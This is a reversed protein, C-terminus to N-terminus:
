LGLPGKLVIDPNLTKSAALEEITADHNYHFWSLVDSISGKGDHSLRYTVQTLVRFAYDQLHRICPVVHRHTEGAHVISNRLRFMRQLHWSTHTHHTALLQAAAPGDKLSKALQQARLGLLDTTACFDILNKAGAPDNFVTLLVRVSEARQSADVGLVQGIDVECRECDEIFNRLLTYIYQSCLLPPVYRKIDGMVTGSLRVMSELAVWYHMFRMGPSHAVRALRCYQAAIRVRNKDADPILPNDLVRVVRELHSSVDGAYEQRSPVVKKARDGARGRYGVIAWVPSPLLSLPNFLTLLDTSQGYKDLALLAATRTDEALVRIEAVRSPIESEEIDLNFRNTISQRDTLVLGLEAVHEQLLDVQGFLPLFVHMETASKMIIRKFETWRQDITRKGDLLGYTLLRLSDPHRRGLLESALQAALEEAALPDNKDFAEELSSVIWELYKEDLISLLPRIELECRRVSTFDSQKPCHTLYHILASHVTKARSSLARDVLVKSRAESWVDQLHSGEVSRDLIGSLVERLETLAGHSNVVRASYSPITAQHLLEEWRQM